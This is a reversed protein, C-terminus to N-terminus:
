EPRTPRSFGYGAYLNAVEADAAVAAALDAEGEDWRGLAIAALGRGYRFHAFEPMALVANNYDNWADQFRGERLALLGRSDLYYSRERDDSARRVALDCAERAIERDIDRMVRTWCRGNQFRAERPRLEAARDYDALARELDGQDRYLNGRNLLVRAFRPNIELAHTFDDLALDHQGMARYLLGRNDFTMEDRPNLVIAREYDALALEHRGSEQYRYGRNHLALAMLHASVGAGDIIQTCAEIAVEDPYQDRQSECARWPSQAFAPSAWALLVAVLSARMCASNLTAM